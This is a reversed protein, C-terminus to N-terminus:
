LGLDYVCLWIVDICVCTTFHLFPFHFFVIPLVVMVRIDLSGYSDHVESSHVGCVGRGEGKNYGAKGLFIFIFV